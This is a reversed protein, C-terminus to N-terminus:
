PFDDILDQLVALRQFKLKEAELGKIAGRSKGNRWFKEELAYDVQTLFIPQHYVRAAVGKEKAFAVNAESQPNVTKLKKGLPGEFVFFDLWLYVVVLTYFAMKIPFAKSM